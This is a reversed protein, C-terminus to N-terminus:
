ATDFRVVIENLRVEKGRQVTKGRGKLALRVSTKGAVEAILKSDVKLIETETLIHDASLKSNAGFTYKGTIAEEVIALKIAKNEKPVDPETRTGLIAQLEAGFKRAEVLIKTASAQTIKGLDGYQHEFQALIKLIKACKQADKRSERSYAKLIGSIFQVTTKVGASSLQIAGGYKLSCKLNKGNKMTIYLDTKPETGGGSTKEVKKPQGYKKLVADVAKAADKKVAAPAAAYERAAQVSDENKEMGSKVAIIHLICWEFQLGANAM